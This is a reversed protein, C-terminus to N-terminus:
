GKKENAIITKKLKIIRDYSEQIRSPKILGDVIANKVIKNIDDALNPNHRERNSFLLIDNRANIAQIVTEELDYNQRIAGMDLDDTIVVGEFGMNRRLLKGITNYSLSAPYIEDYNENYIHSVMVMQLDNKFMLNEYPILEDESFTSTADAFNLHTDEAVSGHGPFHKLATVIGKDSHAKIFEYGYLTAKNPDKSYSREKKHLISNENIDLDVCPGFNLNFLSSSLTQAMDSYMEGAKKLDLEKAIKQASPYDKFGNKNNMRQVQGGEMDIAIFPRAAMRASYLIQTMEDLNEKNKINDEFFIVGSIKGEKLENSVKRFGKSFTSNGKFGVIIMQGIMEDLSTEISFAPCVGFIVTFLFLALIKKLKKM